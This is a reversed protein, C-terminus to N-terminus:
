TESASTAVWAMAWSRTRSGAWAMAWTRARTWNLVFARTGAVVSGRGLGL